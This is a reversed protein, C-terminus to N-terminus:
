NPSRPAAADPDAAVAGLGLLTVAVANEPQDLTFPTVLMPVGARIAERVSNYGGHTCFLQASQLVLKQPVFQEVSVHDAHRM